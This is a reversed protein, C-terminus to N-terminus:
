RTTVMSTTFLRAVAIPEEHLLCESVTDEMAPGETHNRLPHAARSGQWRSGGYSGVRSRRVNVADIIIINFQM